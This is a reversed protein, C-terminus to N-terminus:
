RCQATDTIPRAATPETCLYYVISNNNNNNPSSCLEHLEERIQEREWIDPDTLRDFPLHSINISSAVDISSNKESM